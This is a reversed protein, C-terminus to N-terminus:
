DSSPWSPAGGEVVHRMDAPLPATVRIAQGSVPHPFAIARAHLAQRPFGLAARVRDTPGVRLSELFIDDPQGYLKDGLIPFGLHELHARIQHTRGTHPKCGVLAHHELRRLVKFRTRASAGDPRVAQALEVERGAAGLPAELDWTEWAPVGLVIAWYVKSVKRAEFLAKM